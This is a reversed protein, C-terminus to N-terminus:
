LWFRFGFAGPFSFLVPDLGSKDGIYVSIGPQWAVQLYFELVDDLVFLNVGALARGGAFLTQWGDSLFVSGALGWGYYYKLPAALEKNALWNDATIGFGLHDGFSANAAFIWPMDDLKFTVAGNGYGANGAIFGGQLGIGFAFLSSSGLVVALLVTAFLKKRMGFDGTYVCNEPYPYM